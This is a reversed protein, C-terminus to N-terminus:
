KSEPDFSCLMGTEMGMSDGCMSLARRIRYVWWPQWQTFILSSLSLEETSASLWLPPSIGLGAKIVQNQLASIRSHGTPPIGPHWPAPCSGGWLHCVPPPLCLPIITRWPSAGLEWLSDTPLLSLPSGDSVCFEICHNLKLGQFCLSLSFLGGFGMAPPALGQTHSTAWGWFMTLNPSALNRCSDWAWQWVEM